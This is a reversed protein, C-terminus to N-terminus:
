AQKPSSIRVIPTGQLCTKIEAYHGTFYTVKCNVLGAYGEERVDNVCEDDISYHDNTTEFCKEKAFRYQEKPDRSNLENLSGHYLVIEETKIESRERTM